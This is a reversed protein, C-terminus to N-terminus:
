CKLYKIKIKVRLEFNRTNRSGSNNVQGLGGGENNYKIDEVRSTL